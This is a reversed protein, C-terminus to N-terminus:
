IAGDPAEVPDRSRQGPTPTIWATFEIQAPGDILTSQRRMNPPFNAVLYDLIENHTDANASLDVM